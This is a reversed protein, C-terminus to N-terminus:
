LRREIGLRMHLMFNAGVHGCRGFKDLVVNRTLYDSARRCRLFKRHNIYDNNDLTIQDNVGTFTDRAHRMVHGQSM